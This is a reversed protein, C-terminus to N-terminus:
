EIHQTGSTQFHNSLLTEGQMAQTFKEPAKCEGAGGPRIEFAGFKYKLALMRVAGHGAGLLGESYM